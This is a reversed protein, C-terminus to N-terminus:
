WLHVYQNISIVLLGLEGSIWPCVGILLPSCFLITTVFNYFQKSRVIRWRRLIHNSKILCTNFQLVNHYFFGLLISKNHKKSDSQARLCTEVINLYTCLCIVASLSMNLIWWVYDWFFGFGERPFQNISSVDSEYSNQEFM